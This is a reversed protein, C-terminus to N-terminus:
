QRLSFKKKDNHRQPYSIICGLTIDSPWSQQKLLVTNYM